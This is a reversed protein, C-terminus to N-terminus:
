ISNRLAIFYDFAKILRSGHWSFFEGDVLITKTQQTCKELELAHEEKFPFPESSLLLVDPDGNLRIKQIDIIPYREKNKYINDFKNLELIHNIYTNHAAVMWPNRWIFYAVKLVSKNKIYTNFSNLKVNIEEILSSAKEERYFLDGYSEILEISDKITFVDSVHTQAIKECEEVIEKTNEEKNCLIHTPNLAKIKELHINKTGGVVTKTKTLYVPHM